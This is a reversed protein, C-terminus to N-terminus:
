RKKGKDPMSQLVWLCALKTAGLEHFFRGRKESSKIASLHRSSMGISEAFAKQTIKKKRLEIILEDLTVGELYTQLTALDEVDERMTPSTVRKLPVVEIVEFSEPTQCYTIGLAACHHCYGSKGIYCSCTSFIHDNEASISVRYTGHNGEVNGTIKLGRQQQNSFKGVYRKAKANATPWRATILKQLQQQNDSM